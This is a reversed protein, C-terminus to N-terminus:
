IELRFVLFKAKWRLTVQQQKWNCTSPAWIQKNTQIPMTLYLGPLLTLTLHHLYTKNKSITAKLISFHLSQGIVSSTTLATLTLLWNLLIHTLLVSLHQAGWRLMGQVWLRSVAGCRVGWYSKRQPQQASSLASGAEIKFQGKSEM